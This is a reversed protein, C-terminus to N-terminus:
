IYRGRYKIEITVANNTVSVVKKEPIISPWEWMQSIVSGYGARGDVTVLHKEGDIVVPKGSTMSSLIIDEDKRYIRDRAFAKLTLGTLANTPTITLVAPTIYGTQPTITKTSQNSMTVTKYDTYKYPEANVKVTIMGKGKSTHFPDITCRGIYTYGQELARVIPLKRGEIALTLQDYVAPWQAGDYLVYEFILERRNRAIDYDEYSPLGYLGLEDSRATTEPRGIEERTLILGHEATNFDGYQTYNLIM